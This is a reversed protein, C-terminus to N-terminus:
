DNFDLLHSTEPDVVYLADSSQNILKTFISVKEQALLREEIESHLQQNKRTLEVTAESIRTELSNNVIELEKEFIKREIIEDNLKENTKRISGEFRKYTVFLYSLAIMYAILRM